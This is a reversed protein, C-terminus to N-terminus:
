YPTLYGVFNNQSEVKVPELYMRYYGPAVTKSYSIDPETNGLTGQTVIQGSSNKVYWKVGWGWNINVKINLNGPSYVSTTSKLTETGTLTVEYSSASATTGFALVVLLLVAIMSLLKKKM